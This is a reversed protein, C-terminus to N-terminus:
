PIPPHESTYFMPNRLWENIASERWGACRIGIRVQKPFSGEQIKRYLTSRSLGTRDLVSKIRLIRDSNDTFM